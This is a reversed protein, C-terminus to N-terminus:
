LGALVKVLLQNMGTKHSGSWYIKDCDPCHFFTNYYKKTLPQLRHRIAEKEIGALLGNCNMCRSFPEIINQLGYFSIIERLQEEPLHARVLHGHEIIKRKLLGRDRSLLIRKQQAATEAIGPDDLEPICLTDFGTMRLLSCLKAVNVDVMFRISPLPKPRLIDPWCPNVPVTHADVSISDNDQVQYSFNVQEGNVRLQGIETHPVRLSEIVDKISGHHHITHNLLSLKRHKPHLLTRLEKNFSINLQIIKM